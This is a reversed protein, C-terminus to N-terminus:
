AEAEETADADVDEEATELEAPDVWGLMVRATMIMTQADELSVEFPELAGDDKVREGDV